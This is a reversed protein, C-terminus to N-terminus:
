RRRDGHLPKLALHRNPGTVIWQFSLSVAHGIVEDPCPRVTAASVVDLFPERRRSRHVLDQGSRPRREIDPEASLHALAESVVERANSHM